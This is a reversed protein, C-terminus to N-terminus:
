PKSGTEFLKEIKLSAVFAPDDSFKQLHDELEQEMKPTIGGNRIAKLYREAFATKEEFIISRHSPAGMFLASEELSRNLPDAALLPADDLNIVETAKLSQVIFPSHTTTIFQVRPFAMKLNEVVRRQWKPHLHLDLEDILVVGPTEEVAREKLHPNLKVCRYTLDAIIGIFNQYGNSLSSLPLYVNQGNLDHFFGVFEDRAFDYEIGEWEPIIKSVTNRFTTIQQIDIPNQFKNRQDTLTKFWSKFLKGSSKVSLCDIYGELRSGQKAYSVKEKKRKTLRHETGLREPGFYAILPLVVSPSKQEDRALRQSENALKQITKAGNDLSIKNKGRDMKEQKGSWKLSERDFLRGEAQVIVPLQERMETGYGPSLRVDEAYISRPSESQPSRYIPDLGRVFCGLAFSLADMVATKGSANDGIIVTFRESFNLECEEFRRYNKLFLSNIRM